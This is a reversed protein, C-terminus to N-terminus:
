QATPVKIVMPQVNAELKVKSALSQAKNTDYVPALQVIYLRGFKEHTITKVMVEYGKKLLQQQIGDANERQSFSGIQVVYKTTGPPSPKAPGTAIPLKAPLAATKPKAAATAQMTPAPKPNSPSTASAPAGGAEVAVTSPQETEANRATPAPQEPQSRPMTSAATQMSDPAINAPAAVVPQTSSEGAAPVTTAMTPDQAPAPESKVAETPPLPSSAPVGAEVNGEKIEQATKIGEQEGTPSDYPTSRPIGKMVMGKEPTVKEAIRREGGRKTLLPTIVVLFLLGIAAWLFYSFYSTSKKKADRKLYVREGM